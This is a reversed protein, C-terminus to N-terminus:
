GNMERNRQEVIAKPKRGNIMKPAETPPERNMVRYAVSVAVAPTNKTANPQKRVTRKGMSIAAADTTIKRYTGYQKAIFIRRSRLFNPFM